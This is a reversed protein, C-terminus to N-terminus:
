TPTVQFYDSAKRIEEQKIEERSFNALSTPLADEM